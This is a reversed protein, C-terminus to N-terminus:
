GTNRLGASIGNITAALAYNLEPTDEGARKRRLLEVQILSMPDVYPNRLRISRALVRSNELLEKQNTIRLVAARTREFEESILGFMRDRLAADEVLEAYLRAISLDCKALGMEVNRILDTFLPFRGLMTRLMQQDAFKDLAYGVGFWGPLGHRSQMWGFVWPIARLDALIRTASRRAPRSGIKALDFELAPTAQEFYPVVDPNDRVHKVYYAYSDEAMRDMALNWELDHSPAGPRWLAELSAAIMLELNREALVRDSYKWNLVEGQETIKIEGTFSGPPQAVIARHTPGGGRGVTGGRGHFLRLAVNCERAVHHLAAHAKYLEWTSTLMGGDKNSDSYGLMVEQRRGWEDLLAAYNTDTWIARCIDVSRRLSEISEFLPVPMMKTLDIGGLEALWVFSLIDEPATTGSVIYVQMAKPGYVRQLRAVDRLRGLLDRAAGAGGKEAAKLAEVAQAHVHAHERLDLTYLHFGFTDLKRLLPEVLLRELREGKHTALSDRMISLDQAFEEASAYAERDAPDSIVRRLRYIMCSTLRRYPEDPRDTSHCDLTKDYRDLRARLDGSIDIRKKSPSLRRRLEDLCQIYHALTRQRGQILAYETAEPTVNPNGDHDGGIWSGFEVLRPLSIPWAEAGYVKQLSEAVEQYLEPITEFLVTTYDLGMEVEDLVTPATRRVEDSQWWGTIEAAMEQQIELAHSDVLPVSDLKELLEAIHQRKWLVTRRAVETPHATFVPIVRIRSLAKLADQLPIGASRIRHMTGKLTGPQAELAPALQTARRRRKRHNTEALNTLEFYIAFAKALRAAEAVTIRRVIAIRSDIATEGARGAISLTRLAEVTEFLAPGEQEKIVNGLLRGLSSVDRRLPKEKLEASTGLLERLREEQNKASWLPEDDIPPDVNAM